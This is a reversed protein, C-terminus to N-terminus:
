FILYELMGLYEYIAREGDELAKASPLLPIITTTNQGYTAPAPIANLGYRASLQMLRPIHYAESILIKRGPQKSFEIVEQRSNFTYECLDIREPQIGYQGLLAELAQRKESMPSSAVVSVFVRYEIGQQELEQAIRGAEHLRLLMADNFRLEPPLTRNPYFGNGAVVLTYNDEEPLKTVDLPAYRLTLTSLLHSGYLSMLLYLVFGSCVLVKGILRCRKGRKPWLLLTLGAALLLITFPVPFLIRAALKKVILIIM